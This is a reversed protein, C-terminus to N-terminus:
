DVLEHYVESTKRAVESWLYHRAVHEALEPEPGDEWARVIANVIASPRDPPAYQIRNGFYERTCGYPTLVLATKALAAELAVLGPTEFWSPLALLRASAYASALRPDDHELRPLFRAIGRGAERCERAYGEFGPVTDGILVLPLGLRRSAQIVGLPNKRPEIRGVYLMFPESGVVERFLDPEAQAFRQEVGNPVVRIKAPDAGFLRVLQRAEAQSNPLIRDAVQLLERRWSPWRPYVYRATWKVLDWASRGKSGALAWLSRPSYWCITSLVVPVGKTKALRALTLGERSMGFLHILSAQEIQDTWPVFPRVPWGLSELHRGTQILQNEGGGPMQFATSATHLLVSGAPTAGRIRETLWESARLLVTPCGGEATKRDLCGLAATGCRDLEFQLPKDSEYKLPM